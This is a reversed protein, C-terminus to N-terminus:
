KCLLKDEAGAHDFAEARETCSGCKGCPIDGGSYCTWTHEYPVGLEIGRSCIEGKTWLLYPVFLDLPHWDCLRFANSMAEVFEPRCDPYITHDGAHAGYALRDMKRSIAVAGASALMFMNRNPVVTLKMSPEDYRGFPVGVTSDTQSSGELMSGLMSLDLVDLRVSLDACIREASEIERGHRQRYNVALCEVYDGAALLDYLLTASDMGGSFILMTRM